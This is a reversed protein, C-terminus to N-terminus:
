SWIGELGQRIDDNIEIFIKVILPDFQSDSHRRIEEVADDFSRGKRYARDQILASLTDAVAVIRAGIPIDRGKLRSPYGSGDFREHHYLVIEWIAGDSKFVKVPSLIKAGIEPHRKMWKWDQETFVGSKKLVDDPIGIKGIDHLHGTIHIIDAQKTNFGMALAILRSIVAVQQSHNHTLGDRADVANGLSESLQHMSLCASTCPGINCFLKEIEPLYIVPKM